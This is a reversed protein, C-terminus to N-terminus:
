KQSKNFLVNTNPQYSHLRHNLECIIKNISLIECEGENSRVCTNKHTYNDARHFQSSFHDSFKM